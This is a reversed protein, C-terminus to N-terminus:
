GILRGKLAALLGDPPDCPLDVPAATLASVYLGLIVNFQELSHALRTPHPKAEDLLWDFVAETLSGQALNDETGYDHSGSEYGGSLTRREWGGM